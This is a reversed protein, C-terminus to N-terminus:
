CFLDFTEKIPMQIVTNMFDTKERAREPEYVRGKNDKRKTSM